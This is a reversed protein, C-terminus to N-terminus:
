SSRCLWICGFWNLEVNSMSIDEFQKPYEPTYESEVTVGDSEVLALYEGSSKLKFNTHLESGSVARDKDSAFVILYGNADITTAPLQWKDLEEDDDTLYWGSLSVASGSTNHLEIWDSYDGDEDQLTEDNSAMFESIEVQADSAQVGSLGILLALLVRADVAVGNGGVANLVCRSIATFLKMTKLGVLHRALHTRKQSSSHLKM